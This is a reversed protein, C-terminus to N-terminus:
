TVTDQNSANSLNKTYLKKKISGNKHLGIREADFDVKIKGYEM